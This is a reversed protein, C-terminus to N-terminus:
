QSRSLPRPDVHATTNPLLPSTPSPADLVTSSRRAQQRWALHSLLLQRPHRRQHNPPPPLTCAITSLTSLRSVKGLTSSFQPLANSSPHHTLRPMHGDTSSSSSSVVAVKQTGSGVVDEVEKGSQASAIPGLTCDLARGGGWLPRRGFPTLGPWRAEM